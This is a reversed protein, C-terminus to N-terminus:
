TNIKNNKLLIFRGEEERIVPLSAGQKWARLETGKSHVSLYEAAAKLDKVGENQYVQVDEKLFGALYRADDLAAESILLFEATDLYVTAPTTEHLQQLAAEASAGEGRDGTDTAIVVQKEERWIAVLQVPRLKGVDSGQVPLWLVLATILIYFILRKM